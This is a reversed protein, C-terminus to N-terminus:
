AFDLDMQARLAVCHDTLCDTGRLKPAGCEMCDEWAGFIGLLLCEEPPLQGRRFIHEKFQAAQMANKQRRAKAERGNRKHPKM